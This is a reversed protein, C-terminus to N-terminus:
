NGFKVEPGELPIIEQLSPRTIKQQVKPKKQAMISEVTEGNCLKKNCSACVPIEEAIETRPKDIITFRGAVLNKQVTRYKTYKLMPGDVHVECLKCKYSM